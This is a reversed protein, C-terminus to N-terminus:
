KSTALGTYSDNVCALYKGLFLSFFITPPFYREGPPLEAAPRTFHRPLLLFRFDQQRLDIQNIDISQIRVTIAWDLVNYGTLHQISVVSHIWHPTLNKIEDFVTPSFLFYFLLLPSINIVVIHRVTAQKMWLLLLVTYYWYTCKVLRVAIWVAICIGKM